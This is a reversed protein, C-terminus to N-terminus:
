NVARISALSEIAVNGDEEVDLTLRCGVLM